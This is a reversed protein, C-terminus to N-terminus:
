GLQYRRRRSRHPTPARSAPRIQPTIMELSIADLTKQDAAVSTFFSAPTKSPVLMGMYGSWAWTGGQHGPVDNAADHIFM